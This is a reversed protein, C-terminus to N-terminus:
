RVRALSAAARGTGAAHNTIVARAQLPSMKILSFAPNAISRSTSLRETARQTSSAVPPQAQGRQDSRLPGFPADRV